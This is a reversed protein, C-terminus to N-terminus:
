QCFCLIGFEFVALRRRAYALPTVKEEILQERILSNLFVTDAYVQMVTQPHLLRERVLSLMSSLKVPDSPVDPVAPTESLSKKSLQQTHKNIFLM